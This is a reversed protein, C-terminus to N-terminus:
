PPLRMATIRLKKDRPQLFTETRVIRFAANRYGLGDAAIGQWHTVGVYRNLDAATNLIYSPPLDFSAFRVRGDALKGYVSAVSIATNEDAVYEM